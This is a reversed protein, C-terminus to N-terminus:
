FDGKLTTDLMLNLKTVFSREIVHAKERPAAGLIELLRGMDAMMRYRAFLNIYGSEVYNARNNYLENESDLLDLLTRQGINFQKIYVDRTREAAELAVKLKPLRNQATELANWSLRLSEEVQRQTRHMVETAEEIKITGSAVRAMDGGGRFLNYRLRTMVYADNNKYPLGDLDRNLSTGLELVFFHRRITKSAM